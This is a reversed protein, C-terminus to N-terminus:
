ISVRAASTLPLAQQAYISVYSWTHCLVQKLNYGAFNAVHLAVQGPGFWRYCVVCDIEVVCKDFMHPLVIYM